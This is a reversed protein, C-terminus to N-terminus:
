LRKKRGKNIKTLYDQYMNAWFEYLINIIERRIQESKLDLIQLIQDSQDWIFESEGEEEDGHWYEPNAPSLGEKEELTNWNVYKIEDRLLSEIEEAGESGIGEDENLPSLQILEEVFEDIIESNPFSSTAM